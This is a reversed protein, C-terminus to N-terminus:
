GSNYGGNLKKDVEEPGAGAMGADQGVGRQPVTLSDFDLFVAPERRLKMARTKFSLSKSCLSCFLPTAELVTTNRCIIWFDSESQCPGDVSVKSKTATGRKSNGTGWTVEGV